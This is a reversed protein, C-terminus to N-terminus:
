HKERTSRSKERMPVRGQCFQCGEFFSEGRLDFLHRHITHFLDFIQFLSHLVTHFLDLIYFWVRPTNHFLRLISILLLSHWPVFRSRPHYAAFLNSNTLFITSLAFFTILDVAFISWIGFIFWFPHPINYCARFITHFLGLINMLRSSRQLDFCSHQILVL